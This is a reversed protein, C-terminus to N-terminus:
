VKLSKFDTGTVLNCKEANLDKTLFTLSHNIFVSVSPANVSSKLVIKNINFNCIHASYYVFCCGTTALTNNLDPMQFM